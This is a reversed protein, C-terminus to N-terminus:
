ICWAVVAMAASGLALSGAVGIGTCLSKSDGLEREISIPEQSMAAVVLGMELAESQSASCVVSPIGM